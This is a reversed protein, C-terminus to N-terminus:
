AVFMLAIAAATLVHWLGHGWRGLVWRRRDMQWAGMALLFVGLAILAMTNQKTALIVALFTGMMLNLNVTFAYRYVWAGGVAILAVVWWVNLLSGFVLALFTAYMGAHDLAATKTSPWSHYASSGICLLTMAGAFVWSVATGMVLATVIGAVAYALNSVTNVPQLPWRHPRVTPRGAECVLEIESEWWDGACPKVPGLAQLLREFM